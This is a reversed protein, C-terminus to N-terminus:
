TGDGADFDENNDFLMNPTIEVESIAGTTADLGYVSDIKGHVTGFSGEYPCSM